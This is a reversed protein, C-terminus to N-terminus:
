EKAEDPKAEPKAAAGYYKVIRNGELELGLKEKLGRFVPGQQVRPPVMLGARGYPRHNIIQQLLQKETESLEAKKSLDDAHWLEHSLWIYLWPGVPTCRWTETTRDCINEKKRLVLQYGRHVVELERWFAHVFADVAGKPRLDNALDYKWAYDDQILLGERKLLDWSLTSDMLVDDLTHSGDIYIIDFSDLELPRLMRQSPGKLVTSKGRFGSRALNARFREELDPPEAFIDIGVLRSSPHTLVNEVMWVVSRGEYVGIELYHLGARGRYPALLREWVPIHSSFWDSSFDYPSPAEKKGAGAASEEGVAEGGAAPAALVLALLLLLSGGKARTSRM